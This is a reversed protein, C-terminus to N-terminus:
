EKDAGEGVDVRPLGRNREKLAAGLRTNGAGRRRPRLGGRGTARSTGGESPIWPEGSGKFFLVRCFTPRGLGALGM